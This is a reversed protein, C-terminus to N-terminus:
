IKYTGGARKVLAINMIQQTTTTYICADDQRVSHKATESSADQGAQLADVNHQVDQSDACKKSCSSCMSLLRKGAKAKRYYDSKRSSRGLFEAVAGTECQAVESVTLMKM